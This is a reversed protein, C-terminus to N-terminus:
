EDFGDDEIPPKDVAHLMTAGSRILSMRMEQENQGGVALAVYTGQGHTRRAHDLADLAWSTIYVEVITRDRFLLYSRREDEVSDRIERGEIDMM